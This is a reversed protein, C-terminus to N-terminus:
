EIEGRVSVMFSDGPKARQARAIIEPFCKALKQVQQWFDINTWGPKLFFIVHGAEKWADVEHPNKRIAVDGSIIVWNSEAALDHMWKVDPADAPFRDRLHVFEHEGKVFENFGRSLRLAINNDIFFRV